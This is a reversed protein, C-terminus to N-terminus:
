YNLSTRRWSCGNWRFSASATGSARVTKGSGAEQAEGSYRITVSGSRDGLNVRTIDYEYSFGSYNSGYTAIANDLFDSLTRGFAALLSGENPEVCVPRNLAVAVQEERRKERRALPTTPDFPIVYSLGVSVQPLWQANGMISVRSAGGEVDLRLREALPVHAGVTLGLASSQGYFGVGVSAYAPVPVPLPPYGRLAVGIYPGVRTYSGELAVGVFRYQVAMKGTITRYGPFGGSVGFSALAHRATVEGSFREGEYSEPSAGAQAAEPDEAVPSGEVAAAEAANTEQVPEGDQAAALRGPALGLLLTLLLLHLVFRLRYTPFPPFAIQSVRVHYGAHAGPM